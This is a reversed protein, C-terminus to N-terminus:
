FLSENDGAGRWLSLRLGHPGLDHSPEASPESTVSELSSLSGASSGTGEFDYTHLCDFPPVCPDQDAEVLRDIIFQRFVEDEPGILHSHCLSMRISAVLEERQLTRGRRHPRERLQVSQGLSDADQIAASDAFHVVKEPYEQTDLEQAALKRLQHTRHRWLALM